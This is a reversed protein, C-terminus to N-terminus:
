PALEVYTRGSRFGGYTLLVLVFTWKENLINGLEWLQLIDRMYQSRSLDFKHQVQVKTWWRLRSLEITLADWQDDSPQANSGRRPSLFRKESPLAQRVNMEWEDGFEWLELIYREYFPVHEGCKTHQQDSVYSVWRSQLGDYVKGWRKPLENLGVLNQGMKYSDWHWFRRNKGLNEPTKKERNRDFEGPEKSIQFNTTLCTSCAFVKVPCAFLICRLYCM